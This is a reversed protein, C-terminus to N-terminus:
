TVAENDSAFRLEALAQKFVQASAWLSLVAMLTAVLLDPWRGGGAFVGLGAIIVALNGIADNRTCLWVSQMNSEGNRFRFLLMAVFLNAALALMGVLGMTMAAPSSGYLANIIAMSIVWIGFALMLVAKVLSASARIKLSSSVVMLSLAYTLADGFFDLADAQLAVSDGAYAYIIEVVFMTANVILAVWLVRAFQRSVIGDVHHNSCNSSM